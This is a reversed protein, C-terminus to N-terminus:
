ILTGPHRVTMSVNRLADSRVSNKRITPLDRLVFRAGLAAAMRRVNKIKKFDAKYHAVLQLEKAGSRLTALLSPCAVYPTAGDADQSVANLYIHLQKVDARFRQDTWNEVDLSTRAQLFEYTEPDQFRNSAGRLIAYRERRGGWKASIPIMQLVEVSVKTCELRIASLTTRLLLQKELRACEREETRAVPGVHM